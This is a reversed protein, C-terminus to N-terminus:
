RSLPIPKSMPERALRLRTETSRGTLRWRAIRADWSPSLTDDDTEEPTYSRILALLDVDIAASLTQGDVIQGDGPHAAMLAMYPLADTSRLLSMTVDATASSRFEHLLQEATREAM